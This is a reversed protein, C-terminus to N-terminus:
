NTDMRLVIRIGYEGGFCRSDLAFVLHVPVVVRVSAVKLVELDQVVGAVWIGQRWERGVWWAGLYMGLQKKAECIGGLCGQGELDGPEM